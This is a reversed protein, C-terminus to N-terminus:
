DLSKLLALPGIARLQAELIMPDAIKMTLLKEEYLSKATTDNALIAAVFGTRHLNKNTSDYTIGEAVNNLAEFSNGQLVNLWALNNILMSSSYDVAFGATIIARTEKLKSTDYLMFASQYEYTKVNLSDLSKAFRFYQFAEELNGMKAVIYGKFIYADSREPYADLYTNLSKLTLENGLSDYNNYIKLYDSYYKNTELDTPAEDNTCASLSLIAM